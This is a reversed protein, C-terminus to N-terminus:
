RMICLGDVACFGDPGAMLPNIDISAIWDRGGAALTAAATLINALKARDWAPQGRFGDILGTDTFEDILELADERGFPAMRGGVKKLVEVFIGGLGFVVLPGLETGTQIGIFAEGASRIMPQVAVLPSLTDRAAVARMEAVADDLEDSAVNIKVAKHETRHAVDALKVVWPGGPFPPATVVDAGGILHFPAVPIGAERLLDMTAAFPLMNDQDAIPAAAPRAIPAVKTPDRVCSGPRSRMFRAMTQVGRLSGRLGNGIAIGQARYDDLWSGANGALPSLIFPKGSTAAVRAYPDSLMRAVTDWEAFQSLFLYSDFEPVEAYADLVTDWIDPHGGVFGTADLPNPVTAGPVVTGIWEALRAVEPVDIKEDAALDSAMTAFGGTLTLVSLGRVESWRERPLQDLFQIRDILEDLDHAVQINAQALAVEYTWADGTLTGTHSAAMRLGRESRGIKVAVIPKGAERARRAADFFARPRRIKEIGLVIIRTAPDDVLYDLYDALDTVAENGASILLNFGVGGARHGGAVMAGLLAGSHAVVSTGGARGVFPPLMTLGLRRGVNITGVGNPGVVALGGAMAAARMREQLRAGAEGMEAFGGAITVVGGCGAAAAQEVVEVTREASVASFVVDVPRGISAIDPHSPRGFLSDHKPHVFLIECDSDLAHRATSAWPSNESIGVMAVSQPNLTRDLASRTM